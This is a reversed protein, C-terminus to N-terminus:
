EAQTTKVTKKKKKSNKIQTIRLKLQVASQDVCKNKFTGIILHIQISEPCPLPQHTTLSAVEGSNCV